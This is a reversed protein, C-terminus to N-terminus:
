CTTKITTTLLNCYLQLLLQQRSVYGPFIFRSNGVSLQSLQATQQLNPLLPVLSRGATPNWQVSNSLQMSPVLAENESSKLTRPQKLLPFPMSISMGICDSKRKYGTKTEWYGKTKYGRSGIRCKTHLFCPWVEKKRLFRLVARELDSSFPKLGKDGRVHGTILKRFANPPDQPQTKKSNLWCNYCTFSFIGSADLTGDFNLIVFKSFLNLTNYKM